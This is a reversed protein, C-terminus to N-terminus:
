MKFFCHIDLMLFPLFTFCPFICVWITDSETIKVRMQDMESRMVLRRAIPLVQKGWYYDPCQSAPSGGIM